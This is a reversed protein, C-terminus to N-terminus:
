HAYWLRDDRGLARHFARRMRGVEDLRSAIAGALLDPDPSLPNSRRARDLDRFASAPSTRWTRAARNQLTASWWPLAFSVALAVVAVAGFVPIALRLRSTAPAQTAAAHRWSAAIGLWALAPATLGPFEWFWDIS